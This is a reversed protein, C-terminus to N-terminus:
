QRLWWLLGSKLVESSLKFSSFKGKGESFWCGRKDCVTVWGVAMFDCDDVVGEHGVNSWGPGELM